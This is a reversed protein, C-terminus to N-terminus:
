ESTSAAKFCVLRSCVVHLDRVAAEHVGGCAVIVASGGGGGGRRTPISIQMCGNQSSPRAMFIGPSTEGASAAAFCVLRHCKSSHPALRSLWNDPLKGGGGLPVRPGTISPSECASWIQSSVDGM